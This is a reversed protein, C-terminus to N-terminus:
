DKKRYLLFYQNEENGDFFEKRNFIDIKEFRLQNLLKLYWSFPHNSWFMPMNGKLWNNEVGEWESDFATFLIPANNSLIRKIEYFLSEHLERPLHFISFLAIIGDLSNSPLLKCYSLMDAVIFSKQHNQFLSKALAIQKESLDIGLYDFENKFFYKSVSGSGCGLDLIKKQNNILSIFKKFIALSDIDKDLLSRYTDAIENYGEKVLNRITERDQNM